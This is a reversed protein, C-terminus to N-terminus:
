LARFKGLYVDLTDRGGPDLSPCDESGLIGEAVQLAFVMCTPQGCRRCNSRPLLRVIELVAPKSQKGRGEDPTISDRNDWAENVQVKIWHIIKDAEEENRLANIAIHDPHIGILRGHVKLSV